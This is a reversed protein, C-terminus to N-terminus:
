LLLSRLKFFLVSFIILHLEGLSTCLRYLRYLRCTCTCVCTNMLDHGACWVSKKLPSGKSCGSVFTTESSM